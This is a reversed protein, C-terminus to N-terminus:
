PAGMGTAMMAAGYHELLDEQRDESLAKFRESDVRIKARRMLSMDRKVRADILLRRTFDYFVAATEEVSAAARKTPSSM